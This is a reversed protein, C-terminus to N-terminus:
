TWVLADFVKLLVLVVERYCLVVVLILLRWLALVLLATLYGKEVMPPFFFFGDGRSVSLLTM